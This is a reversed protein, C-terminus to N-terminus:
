FLLLLLLTPEIPQRMAVVAGPVTVHTSTTSTLLWFLWIRVNLMVAGALLPVYLAYKM